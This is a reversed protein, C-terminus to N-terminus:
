GGIDVLKASYVIQKVHGTETEFSSMGTTKAYDQLLESLDQTRNKIQNRLEQVKSDLDAAQPTKLIQKKTNSRIKSAEKVAKDHEQFTPDNNFIDDLMEKFKGSETKLREIMAINSNILGTLDVAQTSSSSDGVTIAPSISSAPNEELM